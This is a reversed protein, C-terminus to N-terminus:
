IILDVEDGNKLGAANADDTDLHLEYFGNKSIKIKADLLCAKDGSIGIKVTDNDKVGYINVDQQNMHVHRNAIICCNKLTIEGIDGVITVEESSELDGSKRVPPNIGLKIADSRTVEVQNYKRFPGVVRVNPIEGKLTRLTVVQNSAFEGLQHLDNRKSLSVSFLQNYIEETLHVHHNSVGVSVKYKM